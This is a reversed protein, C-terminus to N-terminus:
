NPDLWLIIRTLRNSKCVSSNTHMSNHLQKFTMKIVMKHNVIRKIMTKAGRFERWLYTRSYKDCECFRVCCNNRMLRSSIRLLTTSIPSFVQFWYFCISNSITLIVPVLSCFFISSASFASYARAM